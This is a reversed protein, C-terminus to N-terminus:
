LVIASVSVSEPQASGNAVSVNPKRGRKKGAYAKKVSSKAVPQVVPVANVVVALPIFEQTATIGVVREEVVIMRVVRPANVFDLTELM